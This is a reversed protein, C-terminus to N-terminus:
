VFVKRKQRSSLERYTNVRHGFEVHYAFECRILIDIIDTMEPWSMPKCVNATM